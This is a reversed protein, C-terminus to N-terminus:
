LHRRFDMRQHLLIRLIVVDGNDRRNFFVVHSGAQVSLLGGKVESADRDNAESLCLKEFTADIRSLYSVVQETGWRELTYEGISDLDDQAKATLIFRVNNL